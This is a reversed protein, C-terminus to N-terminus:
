PSYNAHHRDVARVNERSDRFHKYDEMTPVDYTGLHCKAEGPCIWLPFYQNYQIKLTLHYHEHWSTQSM